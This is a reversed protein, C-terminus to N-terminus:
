NGYDIKFDNFEGTPKRYHIDISEIKALLSGKHLLELFHSINGQDGEAIVSVSGDALNKVRGVIGFGRAKRTAFDRFMVLQVRGRVVCEVRM